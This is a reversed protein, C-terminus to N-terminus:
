IRRDLGRWYIERINKKLVKGNPSRPLSAVFDFVDLWATAVVDATQSAGKGCGGGGGALYKRSAPLAKAGGDQAAELFTLGV